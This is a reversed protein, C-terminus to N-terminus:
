LSQYGAPLPNAYKFASNSSNLSNSNSSSQKGDGGAVAELQEDSLESGSELKQQGLLWQEIDTGSFTYGKERGIETAVNIVEDLTLANQFLLQLTPDQLVEQYLQEISTVSM